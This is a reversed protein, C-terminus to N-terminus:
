RTKFHITTRLVGDERRSHATLSDLDELVSIVKKISGKNEEFEALAASDEGFIAAAHEEVIKLTEDGFKQLAAFNLRFWNGKREEEASVANAKTILEMSQLRSSSAVFWDDGVTVCPIFDEDTFPLSFFWSTYNDEVSRMPKPMPIDDDLVNSIAAMLNTASANVPEWSVSLAARDNVPAIMSVRAFRATDVVAQPVGKFAPMSGNLDVVLAMDNGLSDAFGSNLTRWIAALEPRFKEDFLGLMERAKEMEEGEVEFETFKMAMAYGTEVLAELYARAAADYAANSSMSAFVVVDESDGLASLKSTAEWDAAGDDVGGFTEIRLGQDYVGVMGFTEVSVMKRLAMEREAVIQLMSELDRSNDLGDEGSLGERIAEAMEAVGHNADILGKLVDAEGHSIFALESNLLADAYKLTDSNVLSTNVDSVLACAEVSPGVFMV